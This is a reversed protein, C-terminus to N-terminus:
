KEAAQVVTMVPEEQDTMPEFLPQPNVLCRAVPATMAARRRAVSALPRSLTRRVPFNWVPNAFDEASTKPRFCPKPCPRADKAHASGQWAKLPASCMPPILTSIQVSSFVAFYSCILYSLSLALRHTRSYLRATYLLARSCIVFASM